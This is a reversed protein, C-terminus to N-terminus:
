ENRLAVLPDVKTARRAPILCAFFAVAGLTCAIAALTLPDHASTHYLLSELLRAAFLASVLGAGLGLAIVGLGQRLVLQLVDGRSAGLAMRIGIESTRQSVSYAMVGYIGVAAILLAVLSFVALLLMAFRRNSVTDALIVELPRISAVPQDRDVAFVQARLSPYLARADGTTRLVISLGTFPSQAFPEYSQMTTEKDVGYQKVDAVIGVIERWNDTNGNGINIRKGLPEEHPFQQRVFTENVVVVRPAKENDQATLLRGRLLRIGMAKFYDPTVAYYNTNPQDSPAIPPRGDVTFTLVWDGVLPLTHTLGVAQVGPLGRFNGLVADAFQREKEPTDYKREPLVV